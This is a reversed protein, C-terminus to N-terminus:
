SCGGHRREHVHAHEGAGMLSHPKELAHAELLPRDALLRVAPGDAVLRGADLLLVRTCCDLVMELDHSIV